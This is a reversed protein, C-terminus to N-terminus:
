KDKRIRRIKKSLYGSVSFMTRLFYSTRRQFMYYKVATWQRGLNVMTEISKLIMDLIYQTKIWKEMGKYHLNESEVTSYNWLDVMVVDTANHNQTAIM